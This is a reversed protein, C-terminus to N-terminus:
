STGGGPMAHAARRRDATLALLVGAIVLLSGLAHERTLREGRVTAGLAVAIMPNVVGIFSATTVAVRGILWAFVVFALSGAIGLYLIPVIQTGGLPWQRTEGLLLSAAFCVPIGALSGVANAGIASQRPGRKLLITGFAACVTALYIALVPLATVPSLLDRAFLLGVGALAVGAGALKGRDVRELGVARAIVASTIPITAFVVAALGSAVTMEGWYLLAMNLGFQFFGFGLATRLAPGRPLGGTVLAIPTLVLAALTLRLTAGWMPPVSENGIRIFLFTSGWILTCLSFAAPIRPDRRDPPISSLPKGRTPAPVLRRAGDYPAVRAHVFRVSGPARTRSSRPPARIIPQPRIGLTSDREM